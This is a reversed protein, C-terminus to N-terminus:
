TGQYFSYRSHQNLTFDPFGTGPHGFLDDVARTPQYADFRGM